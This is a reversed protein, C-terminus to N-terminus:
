NEAPLKSRSASEDRHLRLCTIEPPCAVRVPVVVKGIGRSIYIQTSGLQNWGDIFREGPKSRYFSRLIPLRVQGGHTHGSLMLDVGLRSARGIADPNHCLLIKPDSAPISRMAAHLDDCAFWLDDVGALWLTGGNSRLAYHSNRLVRIRQARLARTVEEPDVRFDHNGLVAFIGLRARLRGLAQAVPRIYSPSFTVYDGTLAVIDPKLLNAITVVRHVEEISTFLSLHIDTLHVIKLGDHAAPLRSLHIETQTIEPDAPYSGPSRDRGNLSLLNLRKRRLFRPTASYRASRVDSVTTRAQNILGQLYQM